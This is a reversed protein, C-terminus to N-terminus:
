RSAPHGPRTTARRGTTVLQAVETGVYYLDVSSDTMVERLETGPEPAGHTRRQKRATAAHSGM